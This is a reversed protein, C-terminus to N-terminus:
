IRMRTLSNCDGVGYMIIKGGRQQFPQINPNNALAGGPNIQEATYWDQQTYNFYNWNSDNFVMYKWYGWTVGSLPQTLKNPTWQLESGPQFTNFVLTGNTVEYDEYLTTAAKVQAASLCPSTTANQGPACQIAEVDVKCRLPDSILGDVVGDLADCQRLVENHLANIANPGLWSASTNPQVILNAYTTWAQLSSYDYAPSGVVVGDFDAPYMQVEKLGQRGGTSCGFYYSKTANMGYYQGVIAKATVVSLHMGRYMYDIVKEPQNLAWSADQTTGNHGCNSSMAAYGHKLATAMDGFQPSGLWGGLGLTAFRTKSANWYAPEPLWVEFQTQSSNSTKIVVSM